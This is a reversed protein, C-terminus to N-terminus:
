FQGNHEACLSSILPMMKLISKAIDKLYDEFAVKKEGAIFPQKVQNIELISGGTNFFENLNSSWIGHLNMTDHSKGFAFECAGCVMGIRHEFIPDFQENQRFSIVLGDFCPATPIIQFMVPPLDDDKAGKKQWSKHWISIPAFKELSVSKNEVEWDSTTEGLTLALIKGADAALDVVSELQKKLAIFEPLIKDVETTVFTAFRDFWKAETGDDFNNQVKIGGAKPNYTKRNIIFAQIINTEFDPPEMNKLEVTMSTANCMFAAAADFQGVKLGLYLEKAIWKNHFGDTKFAITLGYQEVKPAIEEAIIRLRNYVYLGDIWKQREVPFWEISKIQLAPITMCIDDIRNELEKLKKFQEVCYNIFEDGKSQWHYSRDKIGSNQFEERFKIKWAMRNNTTGALDLATIADNIIKENLDGLEYWPEYKLIGISLKDFYSDCSELTFSLLGRGKDNAFSLPQKPVWNKKYINLKGYTWYYRPDSNFADLRENEPTGIHWGESEPFETRLREILRDVTGVIFQGYKAWELLKPMIADFFAMTNDRFIGFLKDETLKVCGISLPFAPEFIVVKDRRNSTVQIRSFFKKNEKNGNISKVFETFPIKLPDDMRALDAFIQMSYGTLDLQCRVDVGTAGLRFPFFIEIKDTEMDRASFMSNIQNLSDTYKRNLVNALLRALTLYGAGSGNNVTSGKKLNQLIAETTNKYRSTHDEELADVWQKNSLHYKFAGKLEANEIRIPLITMRRGNALDVEKEVEASSMSAESVLLTFLSSEEIGKAISTAWSEGSPIDRPAMWCTVGAGEVVNCFLQALEKNKTCYSVFLEKKESEAM